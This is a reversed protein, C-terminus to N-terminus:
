EYLINISGADFVDTGNPTTIRVRDLTGALAKTGATVPVAGTVSAFVGFASWTNGSSLSSIVMQGSFTSAQPTNFTTVGFGATYAGGAPGAANYCYGSYGTISVGSSDGIQVLFTSNTTGSTSVGSFVVTIRKATSPIGTFDISTPGGSSPFPNTGGNNVTKSQIGGSVGGTATLTGTVTLNAAASVNQSADISLATTGSGTGTLINLVGTSDSSFALGNNTANGAIITNAM